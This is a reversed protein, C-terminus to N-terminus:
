NTVKPLIFQGAKVIRSEGTIPSGNRFGKFEFEGKIFAETEEIIRVRGPQSSTTQFSAVGPKTITGKFYRLEYDGPGFYEDIMLVVVYDGEARIKLDGIQNVDREVWAKYLNSAGSEEWNHMFTFVKGAAPPSSATLAAIAEVSSGELSAGRRGRPSFNKRSETDPEANDEEAPQ